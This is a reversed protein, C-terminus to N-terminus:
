KKSYEGIFTWGCAEQCGGDKTADYFTELTYKNTSEFGRASDGVVITDDNNIGLISLYHGPQLIVYAKGEKLGKKITSLYKKANDMESRSVGAAYDDAIVKVKLGFHNNLTDSALFYTSAASDEYGYEDCAIEVIDTPTVSNNGFHRAVMTYAVYGCGSSSITRVGDCTHDSGWRSDNQLLNEFNSDYNNKVTDTNERFQIYEKRDEFMTKEEEELLKDYRDFSDKGENINKVTNLCNQYDGGLDINVSDITIMFFSVLWPTAFIFVAYMIRKGVLKMSKIQEEEKSIIVAKTFDVMLMIILGIPIVVALIEWFLYGFYLVRLITPHQCADLLFYM